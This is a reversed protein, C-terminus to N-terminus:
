ASKCVNVLLSGRLTDTVETWTMQTQAAFAPLKKITTLKSMTEPVEEIHVQCHPKGESHKEVKKAWENNLQIM